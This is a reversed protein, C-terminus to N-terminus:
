RASKPEAFAYDAAEWVPSAVIMSRERDGNVLTTASPIQEQQLAESLIRESLIREPWIWDTLHISIPFVDVGPPISRLNRATTPIAGRVLSM